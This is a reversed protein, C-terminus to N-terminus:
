ASLLNRAQELDPTSAGPDFRNYVKRLADRYTHRQGQEIRHRCLSTLTRLEMSNSRQARASRLSRKFYQDAAEPSGSELFEGNLRLLEPKSILERTDDALHLARDVTELAAAGNGWDFQAEALM